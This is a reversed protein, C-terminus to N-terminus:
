KNNQSLCNQYLIGYAASKSYQTLVADRDYSSFTNSKKDIRTAIDLANLSTQYLQECNIPLPSTQTNAPATSQSTADSQRGSNVIPFVLIGVLAIIAMAILLELFAFGTMRALRLREPM